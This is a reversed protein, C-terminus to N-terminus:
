RVDSSLKLESFYDEIGAFIYLISASGLIVGTIFAAWKSYDYIGISNLLVDAAMPAMSLLLWNKSRPLLRSFVLAPVSFILGGIYIGTCRACVLLKNGSIFFSKATDQHCVISYIKDLFIGPCVRSDNGPFLVRSFIGASWIIM